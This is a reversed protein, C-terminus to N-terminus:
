LGTNEYLEDLGVGGGLVESEFGTAGVYREMVWREGDRRWVRVRRRESDIAWIEAVSPFEQYDPVKVGLDEARTSPSLVEVVLSPDVVWAANEIPACTVALDAVYYEGDSFRIGADAEARCPARGRLRNGIARGTNVVITRHFSRPPNMAVPVGDLLQYRAGREGGNWDVFEDVTMRPTHQAPQAM